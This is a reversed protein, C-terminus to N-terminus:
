SGEGIAGSVGASEFTAMECFIKTAAEM